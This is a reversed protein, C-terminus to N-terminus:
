THLETIWFEHEVVETNSSLACVNLSLFSLAFLVARSEGVKLCPAMKFINNCPFHGPDYFQWHFASDDPKGHSAHCSFCFTEALPSPAGGASPPSPGPSTQSLPGLWTSCIAGTLRRLALTCCLGEIRQWLAPHWSLSLSPYSFLCHISVPLRKLSFLFGETGGRPIQFVLFRAGPHMPLQRDLTAGTQLVTDARTRAWGQVWSRARGQEMSCAASASGETSNTKWGEFVFNSPLTFSFWLRWDKPPMGGFEKLELKPNNHGKSISVTQTSGASGLM